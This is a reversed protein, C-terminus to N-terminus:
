ALLTISSWERQSRKGTMEATLLMAKWLNVNLKRSTNRLIVVHRMLAMLWCHLRLGLRWCAERLAGLVAATEAQIVPWSPSLRAQKWPCHRRSHLAPLDEALQVHRRPPHKILPLCASFSTSLVTCSEYLQCSCKVPWIGARISSILQLM